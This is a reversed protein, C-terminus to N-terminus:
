SDGELNVSLRELVLEVCGEAPNASLILPLAHTLDANSCLVFYEQIIPHNAACVKVQRERREVCLRQSVLRKDEGRFLFPQATSMVSKLFSIM